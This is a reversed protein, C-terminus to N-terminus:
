VRCAAETKSNEGSRMDLMRINEGRKMGVSSALEDGGGDYDIDNHERSSHGEGM